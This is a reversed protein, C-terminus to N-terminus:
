NFKFIKQALKYGGLGIAKGIHGPLNTGSCILSNRVPKYLKVDHKGLYDWIDSRKEEAEPTGIMRLFVSCICMMMSLYSIMYKCLKHSAAELEDYSFADIMIKTIKLQQDIRSKMVDENVSQDERGIFYMYMDTDIYYISKCYPLPEYVFINDVYFTHKPLSLGIDRLLQTRYIASHMLLYQSSNFGKIDEWVFEREVPLAHKYNIPTQENLFVKNYVYNGIVLDTAMGGEEVGKAQKRLYDMIPKTGDVDLWDDSDVVKFYLGKANKM